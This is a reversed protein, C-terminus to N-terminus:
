TSAPFAIPMQMGSALDVVIGNKDTQNHRLLEWVINMGATAVTRNILCDQSAIADATSCSKSPDDALDALEAYHKEVTPYEDNGLIGIVAQGNRQANGLDLWITERFKSFQTYKSIWRRVSPLDVCSIILDPLSVLKHALADEVRLPLAQWNLGLQLNYRNVLTVAKNQGVDTAWFRQRVLNVDRVTADDVVTVSLPSGGLGELATSFQALADVVEGGSGGAGVVLVSVPSSIWHTPAKMMTAM